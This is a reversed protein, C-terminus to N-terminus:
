GFLFMLTEPSQEIWNGVPKKKQPEKFDFGGIPHITSTM